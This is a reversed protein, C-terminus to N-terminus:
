DNDVDKNLQLMLSNLDDKTLGTDKVFAAAMELKDGGFLNDLLNNFKNQSVESKKLLPVYNYSRGNKEHYVFLKEEMVQLKKLITTYGPKPEGSWYDLIRQVSLPESSDWMIKLIKLELEPVNIKKM